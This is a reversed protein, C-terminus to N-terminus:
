VILLWVGFDIGGGDAHGPVRRMSRMLLSSVVVVV